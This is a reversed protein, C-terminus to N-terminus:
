PTLEEHETSVACEREDFLNLYYVTTGEPLSATARGEALQAPVAEWKRDQWKGTDKTYNLEAKAVAARSEFTAWVQAGDRGQGTIKPLPAGGKLLSDAFVQIEKPGEGAAGHGHPMRLRICLTRPAKPLRYSKQLSNFTYAFDNSGTVWCMPMPANPLYVSPDWWRMWRAAGAEGLGSVSGAFGHENTFGCGYVPVAFKLRPDVGALICTLYGGWSIGTLGVRDPDVEPLSRLLSHGLIADAIAHYTWQDERPWDIQSWGGWGPPGGSEHHEWNGYTGKPVCGCTDMAIAAYGRDVWLRVWSEFATGGGGHVLVMGPVKQGPEVKPIGIWAFVRTPKGRFPPGEYFVAKMGEASFGEAPHTAPPKSLKNMDWMPGVPDTPPPPPPSTAVEHARATEAETAANAQLTVEHTANPGVTAEWVQLGDGWPGWVRSSGTIRLNAEDADSVRFWTTQKWSFTTPPKEWWDADGKVANVAKDFVILCLLKEATANTVTWKAADAGFDYRVSAKENKAVVVDEAPREITPLVLPGGQFLYAGRPNGVGAKLFEQGAVRLSTLCGDVAVTAEYRDKQVRCYDAPQQPQAKGDPKVTVEAAHAATCLLATAATLLGHTVALRM